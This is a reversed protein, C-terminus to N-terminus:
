LRWFEILTLMAPTPSVRFKLAASQYTSGSLLSALTSGAKLPSRSYNNTVITVTRLCERALLAQQEFSKGKGKPKEPFNVGSM